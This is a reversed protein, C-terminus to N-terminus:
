LDISNADAVARAERHIGETRAIVRSQRRGYRELFRRV